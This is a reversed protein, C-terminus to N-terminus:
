KDTRRAKLQARISFIAAVTLVYLIPVLVILDMRLAGGTSNKALTAAFQLEYLNFILWLLGAFVAAERFFGRVFLSDKRQSLWAQVGILAVAILVGAYQWNEVLKAPGFFIWSVIDM